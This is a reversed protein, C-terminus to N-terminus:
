SSRPFAPLLSGNNAGRGNNALALEAQGPVWALRARSSDSAARAPRNPSPAIV